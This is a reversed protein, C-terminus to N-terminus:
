ASARNRMEIVRWILRGIGYGGLSPLGFWVMAILGSVPDLPVPENVGFSLVLIAVMGVLNGIFGVLLGTWGRTVLGATIGAALLIVPSIAVARTACEANFGQGLCGIMSGGFTAAPVALAVVLFAIFDRLVSYRDSNL